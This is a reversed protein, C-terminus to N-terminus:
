TQVGPEFDMGIVQTIPQTQQATHPVRPTEEGRKLRLFVPCSKSSAEHEGDCNACKPALHGCKQGRKCGSRGCSHQPTPHNKGCVRCKGENKCRKELHGFQQCNECRYTKSTLVLKETRLSLGGINLRSSLAKNFDGESSFAIAVSGSEQTERKHSSTLWYPTGITTLSNYTKIEEQLLSLDQFERIPVGHVVVKFWSEDKAAKIIPLINGWIEQNKLLFDADYTPTTTIIISKKTRSPAVLSIIPGKFSKATFAKNFRDRIEMSTPMGLTSAGLTLVLRKEQTSKPKGLTKKEPIKKDKKSSITKWEDNQPTNAKARSAWSMQTKTANTQSSQPKSTTPIPPPINKQGESGKNLNNVRNGLTKVAKEIDLAQRSLMSGVTATSGKEIFERFLTLYDLIKSQREHTGALDAAKILLNRAEKLADDCTMADTRPRTSQRITGEFAPRKRNTGLTGLQPHFDQSQPINQHSPPTTIIDVEEEGTYNSPSRNLARDPPEGGPIEM